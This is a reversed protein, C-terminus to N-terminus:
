VCVRYELIHMKNCVLRKRKYRMSYQLRELEAVALEDHGKVEELACQQRPYCRLHKRSMIANVMLIDNYDWLECFSDQRIMEAKEHYM